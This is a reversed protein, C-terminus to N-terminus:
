RPYSWLRRDSVDHTESNTTRVIGPESFMENARIFRFRDLVRRIEDSAYLLVFTLTLRHELIQNAVHSEKIPLFIELLPRGNNSKVM